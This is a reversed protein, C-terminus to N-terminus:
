WLKTDNPRREILAPMLLCEDGYHIANHTSLKTTIVNEPDLVCKRFELIDNSTIPNIHHILAGKSIEYGEIGLDCGNDRILIEDRFSMWERSRYFAQNLYRKFGFTEEGVTGGLKLYAFREDFTPLSILESYTKRKTM